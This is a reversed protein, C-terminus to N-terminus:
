GLVLIVGVQAVMKQHSFIVVIVLCHIFMGSNEKRKKYAKESTQKTKNNTEPKRRSLTLTDQPLHRPTAM